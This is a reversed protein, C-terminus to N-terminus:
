ADAAGRFFETLTQNWDIRFSEAHDLDLTYSVASVGLPKGDSLMGAVLRPFGDVVRYTSREKVSFELACDILTSDYKALLSELAALGKENLCIRIAQLLRPVSWDGGAVQELRISHLHLRGGEPTELQDWDSIQVRHAKLDSRLSSKVEIATAGNRFDHREGRPGAWYMVMEPSIQVGDFLVLLEGILGTLRPHDIAGSAGLLREFEAHSKALLIGLEQEDRARDLLFVAFSVFADNCRPDRCWIHLADIADSGSSFQAVEARLAGSSSSRFEKPVTVIEGPDLPMVLGRWGEQGVSLHVQRGSSVLPVVRLSGSKSVQQEAASWAQLLRVEPRRAEDNAM